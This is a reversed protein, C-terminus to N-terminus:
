VFPGPRVSVTGVPDGLFSFAREAGPGSFCEAKGGAREAHPIGLRWGKENTKTLCNGAVMNAFERLSDEVEETQVM